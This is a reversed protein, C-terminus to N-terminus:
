LRKYFNLSVSTATSKESITYFGARTAEFCVGEGQPELEIRLQKAAAQKLVQGVGEGEMRKWYHVALYTRVLIESGDKSISAGTATSIGPITGVNEAIIVDSTSQPYPLRYIGTNEMDKSIIFIDRTVPDVIMSESNRPGGPYSFSIKEVSSQNFAGNLDAIEPIRYIVSVPAAPTNNNGIDGIYLYNVGANPGPGSAIDEWDRNTTGPVNYEKISKGDKSILYLSNPAGSDQNTWLYGPMNLSPALGSGEDIIGPEIPFKEAKTEFQDSTGLPPEPEPNCSFALGLALSAFVISLQNGPRTFVNM